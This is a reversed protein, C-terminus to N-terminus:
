RIVGEISQLYGGACIMIDRLASTIYGLSSFVGLASIIDGGSGVIIIDGLACNIGWRVSSIGLASHYEGIYQM